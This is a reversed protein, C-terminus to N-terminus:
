IKAPPNRYQQNPTSRSMMQQNREMQHHDMSGNYFYCTRIENEAPDREGNIDDDITIEAISRTHLYQRDNEDIDSSDRDPNPAADTIDSQAISNSRTVEKIREALEKNHNKLDTIKQTTLEQDM